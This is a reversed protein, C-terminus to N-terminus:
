TASSSAFSRIPTTVRSLPTSSLTRNARTELLFSARTHFRHYSKSSAMESEILPHLFYTASFHVDGMPDCASQVLLYSPWNFSTLLSPFSNSPVM